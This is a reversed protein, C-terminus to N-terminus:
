RSRDQRILRGLADPDIMTFVTKFGSFLTAHGSTVIGVLQGKEDVVPGGSMGGRGVLTSQYLHYPASATKRGIGTVQGATSYPGNGMGDKMHETTAFLMGSNRGSAGSFVRAGKPLPAEALEFVASPRYDFKVLALDMTADQWVVRGKHRDERFYDSYRFPGSKRPLPKLLVTDSLLFGGDEVVHRATLMYGDRTLPVARGTPVLGSNERILAVKDSFFEKIGKGKIPREPLGALSQQQLERIERNDYRRRSLEPHVCSTFVMALALFLLHIKMPPNPERHCVPSALDMGCVPRGAPYHRHGGRFCERSIRALFFGVM